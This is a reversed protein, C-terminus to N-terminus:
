GYGRLGVDTTTVDVALLVLPLAVAGLAGWTSMRVLSLKDFSKQREAFRLVVAFAAGSLSGWATWATVFLAVSVPRSIVDSPQPPRSDAYWALALGIPSWVVAWTMAIGLGDRLRRTTVVGETM